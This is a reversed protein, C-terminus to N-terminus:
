VSKNQKLQERYKAGANWARGINGGVAWFRNDPMTLLFPNIKKIDPKGESLFDENSYINLV